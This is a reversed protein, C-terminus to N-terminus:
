EDSGGTEGLVAATPQATTWRSRRRLPHGHDLIKLLDIAEHYGRAKGRSVDGMPRPFM